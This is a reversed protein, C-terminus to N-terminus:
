LVPRVMAWYLSKLTYPDSFDKKVRLVFVKSICLEYHDQLTLRSDLQIGLDRVVYTRPVSCCM